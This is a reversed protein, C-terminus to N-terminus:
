DLLDIKEYLYNVLRKEQGFTIFTTCTLTLILIFKISNQKVEDLFSILGYSLKFFLMCYFRQGLVFYRPDGVPAFGGEHDVGM